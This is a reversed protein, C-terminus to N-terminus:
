GSRLDLILFCLVVKDTKAFTILSFEQSTVASNCRLLRVFFSLSFALIESTSWNHHWLLCVVIHSSNLLLCKLDMISELKTLNLTQVVISSWHLHLPLVRLSVNVVASFVVSLPAHVGGLAFVTGWQWGCICCYVVFGHSRDYDIGESFYINM